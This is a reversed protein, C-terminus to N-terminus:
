KLIEKLILKDSTNYSVKIYYNKYCTILDLHLIIVIINEYQFIIKLETLTYTKM